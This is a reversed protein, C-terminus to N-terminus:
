LFSHVLLKSFRVRSQKITRFYNPCALQIYYFAPVVRELHMSPGMALQVYYDKIYMKRIRMHRILKIGTMWLSTVRRAPGELRLWGYCVAVERHTGLILTFHM